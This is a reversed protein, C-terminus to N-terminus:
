GIPLRTSPIPTIASLVTKHFWFGRVNWPASLSITAFDFRAFCLFLGASTISGLKYPTSKLSPNRANSLVGGGFFRFFGHDFRSTFNASGRHRFFLLTPLENGRSDRLSFILFDNLRGFLGTQHFGLPHPRFEDGGSPAGLFYFSFEV